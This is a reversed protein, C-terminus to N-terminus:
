RALRWKNSTKVACKMREYYSMVNINKDTFISSETLSKIAQGADSKNNGDDQKKGTEVIEKQRINLAM